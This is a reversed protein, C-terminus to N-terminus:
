FPKNSPQVLITPVTKLETLHQELGYCKWLIHARLNCTQFKEGAYFDMQVITTFRCLDLDHLLM